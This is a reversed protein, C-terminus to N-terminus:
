TLLLYSKINDNRKADDNTKKDICSRNGFFFFFNLLGFHPALETAVAGFKDLSLVKEEM